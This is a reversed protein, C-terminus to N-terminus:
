SFSGQFETFANVVLNATGADTLAEINGVGIVSGDPMTAIGKYVVHEYVLSTIMEAYATSRNMALMSNCDTSADLGGSFEWRTWYLSSGAFPITGDTTTSLTAGISNLTAAPWTTPVTWTVNGDQGLSAGGTTTGDSASVDTWAAGDWAKVTMVSATSNTSQVDVAVGRFQRPGGIYVFDSNAATSLSNLTVRSTSATSGDQAVASYDTTNATAALNDTTKLVALYPNIAYRVVVATSLNRPIMQIKVYKKDVDPIQIFAAATSMATGASTGAGRVEGVRGPGGIGLMPAGRHDYPATQLSQFTSRAM